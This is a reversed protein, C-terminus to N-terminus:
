KEWGEPSGLAQLDPSPFHLQVQSGARDSTSLPWINLFHYQSPPLDTDVAQAM